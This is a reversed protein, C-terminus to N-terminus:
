ETSRPRLRRRKSWGTIESIKVRRGLIRSALRACKARDAPDQRRLEKSWDLFDAQGVEGRSVIVFDFDSLYSGPISFREELIRQLEQWRHSELISLLKKKVTQAKIGVLRQVRCMPIGVVILAFAQLLLEIRVHIREGCFLPEVEGVPISWQRKCAACRVQQMRGKGMASLSGNPCGAQLRCRPCKIPFGRKRCVVPM